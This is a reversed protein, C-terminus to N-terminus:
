QRKRFLRLPNFESADRAAGRALTARLEDASHMQLDPDDIVLHGRPAIAIAKDVAALGQALLARDSYVRGWGQRYYAYAIYFQTRADREAPDARGFAARAEVFQDRRFFRLGDDFAQQDISYAGIIAAFGGTAQAVTQPQNAAIWGLAAAYALAALLGAARVIPERMVQGMKGPGTWTSSPAAGRSLGVASNPRYADALYL